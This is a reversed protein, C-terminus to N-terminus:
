RLSSINQLFDDFHEKKKPSYRLFDGGWKEASNTIVYQFNVRHREEREEAPMTLAEKIASSVETVNWPNVLLAGAGLSQGAGAFQICKM